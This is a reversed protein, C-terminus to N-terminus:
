TKLLLHFHNPLLAWAYCRTNSEDIITDLRELFNRRDDDDRFIDRKEIGRVM